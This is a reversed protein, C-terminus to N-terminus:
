TRVLKWFSSLRDQLHIIDVELMCLVQMYQYFYIFIFNIPYFLEFICIFQIKCLCVCHIFKDEGYTYSIYNM